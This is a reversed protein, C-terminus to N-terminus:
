HPKARVKPICGAYRKLQDFILINIQSLSVTKRAIIEKAETAFLRKVANRLGKESGIGGVM